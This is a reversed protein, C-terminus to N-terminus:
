SPKDTQMDQRSGSEHPDRGASVDACFWASVGLFPSNTFGQERKIRFYPRVRIPHNQNLGDAGVCFELFDNVFQCSQM